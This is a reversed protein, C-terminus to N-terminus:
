FLYCLRKQCTLCYAAIVPAVEFYFVDKKLILCTAEKFNM